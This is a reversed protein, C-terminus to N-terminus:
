QSIGSGDGYVERFVRKKREPRKRIHVSKKPVNNFNTTKIYARSNLVYTAYKRNYGLMACFEDLIKAKEKKTALCYRKATEDTLKQKTKMDLGM